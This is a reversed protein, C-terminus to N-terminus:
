EETTKTSSKEVKIKTKEAADIASVYGLGGTNGKIRRNIVDRRESEPFRRIAKTM